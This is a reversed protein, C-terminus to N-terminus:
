QEDDGGSYSPNNVTTDIIDMWGIDWGGNDTSESSNTDTDTVENDDDPRYM